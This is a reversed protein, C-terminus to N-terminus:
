INKSISIHFINKIPSKEHVRLNIKNNYFWTAAIKKATKLQRCKFYLEQNQLCQSDSIYLYESFGISKLEDGKNKLNSRAYNVKQRVKRDKFKLIARSKNKMKHCAQLSDPTIPIGTLSIAECIKKELEVDPISLPISNIRYNGKQM